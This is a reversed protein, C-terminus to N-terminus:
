MLACPGDREEAADDRWVTGLKDDTLPFQNAQDFGDAM